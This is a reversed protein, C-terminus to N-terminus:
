RAQARSPRWTPSRTRTETSAPVTSHSIRSIPVDAPTASGASAATKFVAGTFPAPELGAARVVSSTTLPPFHGSASGDEAVTLRVLGNPVVAVVGGGPRTQDVWAP